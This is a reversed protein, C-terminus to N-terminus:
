SALTVPKNGTRGKQTRAPQTVAPTDCVDDHSDFQCDRYQSYRINSAGHLPIAARESKHAIWKRRRWRKLKGDKPL